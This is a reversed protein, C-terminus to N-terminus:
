KWVAKAVRLLNEGLLGRLNQETYGMQLLRNVIDPLQEPPIIRVDGEYGLGAPFTSRMRAIHEEIESQDVAFDIGLAVHDPGILEVAYDVHRVFAETSNDNNGLFIGIGNLGVVGGTRACAIMEQDTVNRPHDHLARANSHSIIAPRTTYEMVDMTTRFGTHSCCVVMGVRGMEDVVERGFTTLGTDVDQCGGGVLNNRNYAILMWRVGLDYYLQILSTQDAIANAGEIDFGIALKGNARALEIDRVTEIIRYKDSHQKLWRRYNALTRIHGEIDTDGFGVNLIVVDTGVKRWRELQPLFKQDHPRLPMCAHNDWVLNSALVRSAPDLVTPTV